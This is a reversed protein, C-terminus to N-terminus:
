KLTPAEVLFYVKSNEGLDKFHNVRANVGAEQLEKLKDNAWALSEPLEGKYIQEHHSFAGDSFHVDTKIQPQEPNRYVIRVLNERALYIVAAYFEKDEHFVATAGWEALFKEPDKYVVIAPKVNQKAFRDLMVGAMRDNTHIESLKDLLDPYRPKLTQELVQPTLPISLDFEEIAQGKSYELLAWRCSLTHSLFTIM